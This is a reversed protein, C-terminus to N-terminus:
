LLISIVHLVSMPSGITDEKKFAVINWNKHLIGNGQNYVPGINSWKKEKLCM